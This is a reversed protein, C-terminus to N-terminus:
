VNLSNCTNANHPTLLEAKVSTPKASSHSPLLLVHQSACLNCYSLHRYVDIIQDHRAVDRSACRENEVAPPPRAASVAHCPLQLAHSHKCSLSPTCDDYTHLPSSSWPLPAPPDCCDLQPASCALRSAISVSTMVVDAHVILGSRRHASRSWNPLLPRRWLGDGAVGAEV